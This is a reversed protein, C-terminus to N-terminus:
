FLICYVTQNIGSLSQSWLPRSCDPMWWWSYMCWWCCCCCCKYHLFQLHSYVEVMHPCCGESTISSTLLVADGRSPGTILRPTTAVVKLRDAWVFVTMISLTWENRWGVGKWAAQCVCVCMSMYVCVCRGCNTNTRCFTSVVTEAGDQCFSTHAVWVQCFGSHIITASSQHPSAGSRNNIPPESFNRWCKTVCWCVPLDTKSHARSEVNRRKAKKKRKKGLTAFDFPLM